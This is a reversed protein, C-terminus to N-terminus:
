LFLPSNINALTNFMMIASVMEKKSLSLRIKVSLSSPSVSLKVKNKTFLLVDPNSSFTFTQNIGDVHTIWSYQGNLQDYVKLRYGKKQKSFLFFALILLVILILMGM